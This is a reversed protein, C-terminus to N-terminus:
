RVEFEGELEGISDAGIWLKFAGPEVVYRMGPGWFGLEHAPVEFRVTRAEGPDLTIRQFGKLEKVPRTVSSILDRVYLQAVEAGARAGTNEVVISVVLNGDSNVIPTEVNLERYEFTTYSLGHGFAFLPENPMDIYRSKFPEGFQTVGASEMPRGTNKHAYYIPIQGETRPWSVTLKGSPNTAGCLIDAVARGARIGGHWAVLLATVQEAMRPIVLPRGTMLVGVIPKGTQALADLLEQQRGPLGLHARSRAEGSMDAGEGLVVVVVDAHQAAAVAAPIDVLGDGQIPCGPVHTLMDDGLAARLGELVSETDGAQGFLVWTGLLDRKAEALPGIVAIRQAGPTLPLLGGDNKVLVMSEQAVQLALARFDDRLIIQPAITEDVYPREFLGLQLKLRLVRRAADDVLQENVAGQDVLAALHQMYADSMMDMDVGALMSLRAADALDAAVGHPILERVAEYDSLVVGPWQWEERLLARLLWPNSTAPVGSIENFSSMVSGAGADFAAKFPPLYVERLTRESIDVTNYDRGAEAAGYAAYHKPCAAIRRGTALGATQFGRVRARALAMGLFPDEGGGEAVRGWRPDRAIDVMPAFIWDIGSASAEEAAVRAAKELLPPDWTCAEALPIPFITRFGHIVDSGILLPIGLRSEEVAIRQYQNVLRVDALNLLSGIEGARIQEELAPRPRWTIQFPQDATQAQEMQKRLEDPDPMVFPAVQVLQGVKDALTMQALLANVRTEIEPDLQDYRLVDSEL